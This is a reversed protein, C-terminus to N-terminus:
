FLRSKARRLAPVADRIVEHACNRGNAGSVGGGPHTGAGCLYLGDIPTRYDAHGRVPRLSFLQDFAMEGHLAHGGTIGLLSELDVPSLVQRAVISDTLGPM